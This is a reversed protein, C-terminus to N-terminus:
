HANPIKDLFANTKSVIGEWLRCRGGAGFLIAFLYPTRALRADAAMMPQHVFRFTM